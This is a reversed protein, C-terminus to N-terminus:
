HIPSFWHETRLLKVHGVCYCLSLKLLFGLFGSMSSLAVLGAAMDVFLACLFVTLVYPNKFYMGGIALCMVLMVLAFHLSRSRRESDSSFKSAAFDISEFLFLTLMILMTLTVAARYRPGARGADMYVVVRDTLRVLGDEDDARGDFPLKTSGIFLGRGSGAPLLTQILGDSSRVRETAGLQGSPRHHYMRFSSTRRM